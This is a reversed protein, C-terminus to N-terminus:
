AEGKHAQPSIGSVEAYMDIDRGFWFDRSVLSLWDALDGEYGKKLACMYSMYIDPSLPLSLTQPVLNLLAAQSVANTQKAFTVTVPKAKVMGIPKESGSLHKFEQFYNYLTKAKLGLSKVQPDSPRLGQSFLEFAKHKKSM